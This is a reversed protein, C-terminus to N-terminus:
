GLVSGLVADRGGDTSLDALVWDAGAALLERESNPGTAVGLVEIGHERGCAIDNVTDGVILTEAVSFRRGFRDAARRLALPPLQRRDRCGDGYAGAGFYRQLGVCALKLEAGVQWNGTLLALRIDDRAALRDLTEEVGPLLRMARCDANARLGEAYLRKVEEMGASVTTVPVGHGELSEFVIQDDTKGAFDCGALGGSTGYVSELAVALRPRTQGGCHLLTGDIDFLVLRM